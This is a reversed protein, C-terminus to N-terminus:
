LKGALTKQAALEAELLQIKDELIQNTRELKERKEAFSIKAVLIIQDATREARNSKEILAQMEEELSFKSANIVQAVEDPKARLLPGRPKVEHGGYVYELVVRCNAGCDEAELALVRDVNIWRGYIKTLM